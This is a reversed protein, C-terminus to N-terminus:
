ALRTFRQIDPAGLVHPVIARLAAEIHPSDLHAELSEADEWSEIFTFVQPDAGQHLDYFHCGPEARTPALLGELISRLADEHGPRATVHAVVRVM